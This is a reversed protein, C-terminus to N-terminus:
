ERRLIKDVLVNAWRRSTFQRKLAAPDYARDVWDLLPMPRAATDALYREFFYDLMGTKSQRIHGRTWHLERMARAIPEGQRWHRYLVGMFGARDAGSKCHMVAPYAIRGFLDHAGHLVDKAPMDRSKVAFDVLAIGHRRCAEAELHYWGSDNYGRLNVITRVGRRAWLGIRFPLPHNAREMEPALRFRHTWLLRLFGHDVAMMDWWARRRGAATSLDFRM